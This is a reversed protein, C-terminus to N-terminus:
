AFGMVTASAMPQRPYGWAVEDDDDDVMRRRSCWQQGDVAARAKDGRPSGERREAPRRRGSVLGSTCSVAAARHGVLRAPTSPSPTPADASRRRAPAYPYSQQRPFARSRPSRSSPAPLGTAHSPPTVAACPPPHDTDITPRRESVDAM